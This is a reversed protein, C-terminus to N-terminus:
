TGAAAPSKAVTFAFTTGTPAESKFEVHGGLYREGLLKMSYTGIGRRTPDKTSFSRQFIELQVDEPIVTPNNVVFRVKDGLDLCDMTIINGPPTAEVVNKLMNGLIRALLRRDSYVIGGWVNRLEIKLQSSGATGLYQMRLEELLQKVAVMGPRVTLDGSEARVLDRQANIEEILQESLHLLSKSVEDVVGNHKALHAAYNSICAATNLVDHFFVGQLVALRKPQSIDEAALVIFPEEEVFVLTASVRLDLAEPGAENQQLIRCERVVQINQSLSALIANVAGCFACHPSTGCGDPGQKARVCGVAEGPRKEVLDDPTRKLVGEMARNTAIIQRKTNLVMVMGPIADLADILLPSREIIAKKRNIEEPTDRGAPAFYTDPTTM